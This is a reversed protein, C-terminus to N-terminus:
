RIYREAASTEVSEQLEHGANHQRRIGNCMRGARLEANIALAGSRVVEGNVADARVHAHVRCRFNEQRKPSQAPVRCSLVPRYL